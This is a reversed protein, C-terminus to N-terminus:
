MGVCFVLWSLCLCMCSTGLLFSLSISVVCPFFLVGVFVQDCTQGVLLGYGVPVVDLFEWGDTALPSSSLGVVLVYVGLGRRM